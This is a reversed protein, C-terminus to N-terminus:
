TANNRAGYDALKETLYYFRPNTRAPNAIIKGKHRLRLTIRRFADHKLELFDRFSFERNLDRAKGLVYSEFLASSFTRRFEPKVCDLSFPTRRPKDVQYLFSNEMKINITQQPLKIQSSGEIGLMFSDVLSLTIYCIDLGHDKAWQVFTKWRFYLPENPARFNCILNKPASITQQSEM